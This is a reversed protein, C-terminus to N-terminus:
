ELKRIKIKKGWMRKKNKKAIKRLEFIEVQKKKLEILIQNCIIKLKNNKKQLEWTRKRKQTQREDINTNLGRGRSSCNKM